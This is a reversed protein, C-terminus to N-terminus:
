HIKKCWPQRRGGSYSRGLKEKILIAGVDQNNKDYVNADIRGEYKDNTINKIEVTQGVPILEALRQKAILAKEIEEDCEGHIEPTDVNRLRVSITSVNVNKSLAVRAIFTDGDVIRTVTAPVAFVDLHLGILLFAFIIRKM